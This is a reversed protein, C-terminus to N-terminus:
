LLIRSVSSPSVPAACKMPVAPPRGLSALDAVKNSKSATTSTESLHLANRMRLELEEKGRTCYSFWRKQAALSDFTRRRLHIARMLDIYFPVTKTEINSPWVIRVTRIQGM